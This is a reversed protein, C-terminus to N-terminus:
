VNDILVELCEGCYLVGYYDLLGLRVDMRETKTDYVLMEQKKM